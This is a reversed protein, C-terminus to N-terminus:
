ERPTQDHAFIWFGSSRAGSNNAVSSAVERNGRTVLEDTVPPAISNRKSIALLHSQSKTRVNAVLARVDLRESHRLVPGAVDISDDFALKKIVNNPANDTRALRKALQARAAVEIESALRGIVEGFTWIQDETYTGAILLDTTHLLARLRSKASGHSIADNLDRLFSRAEMIAGFSTRPQGSGRKNDVHDLARFYTRRFRTILTAIISYDIKGDCFSSRGSLSFNETFLAGTGPFIKRVLFNKAVCSVRCLSDCNIREAHIESREIDLKNLTKCPLTALEVVNFNANQGINHLDVTDIWSSSGNISADGNHSNIFFVRNSDGVELHFSKSIAMGHADIATVAIPNNGLDSQTPVGSIVGTHADISLGAPLSGSFTLADGAAPAV